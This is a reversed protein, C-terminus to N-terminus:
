LTYRESYPILIYEGITYPILIYEGITYPILIYERENHPVRGVYMFVLPYEGFTYHIDRAMHITIERDTGPIDHPM